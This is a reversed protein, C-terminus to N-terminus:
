LDAPRGASPNRGFELDLGRLPAFLEFLSKRGPAPKAPVSASRLLQSAYAELSLGRAQAQALLGAEVDPTLELKMIM